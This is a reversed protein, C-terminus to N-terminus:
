SACGRVESTSAPRPKSRPLFRLLQVFVTNHHAVAQIEQRKFSKRLLDNALCPLNLGGENSLRHSLLTTGIYGCRRNQRDPVTIGRSHEYEQLDVWIANKFRHKEDATELFYADPKNPIVGEREALLLIDIAVLKEHETEIEAGNVAFSFTRAPTTTM